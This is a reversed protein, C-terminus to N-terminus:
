TRCQRMVTLSDMGDQLTATREDREAGGIWALWASLADRYMDDNADLTWTHENSEVMSVRPGVDIRYDHISRGEEHAIYGRVSLGDAVLEVKRAPGLLWPATDIPHAAIVSLCNPGYRELLNESARFRAEGNERIINTAEEYVHHFRYQYGVACREVNLRAFKAIQDLAGIPKEIYFPIGADCLAMAQELHAETPSAIIAADADSHLKFALRWDSYAPCGDSFFDGAFKPDVLIPRVGPYLVRLNRAHRGGISGLGFILVKM